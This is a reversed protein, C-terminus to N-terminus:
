NYIDQAIKPLERSLIKQWFSKKTSKSAIKPLNSTKKNLQQAFKHMKRSTEKANLCKHSM